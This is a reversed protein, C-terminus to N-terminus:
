LMCPAQSLVLEFEFLCALNGQLERAKETILRQIASVDNRACADHLPSVLVSNMDRAIQFFDSEM